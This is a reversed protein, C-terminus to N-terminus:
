MGFAVRDVPQPIGCKTDDFFKYNKHATPPPEQLNSAVAPAITTEPVSVKPALTTYTQKECCISKSSVHLCTAMRAKLEVLKDPNIFDTSFLTCDKLDM